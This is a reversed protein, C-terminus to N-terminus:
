GSVALCLETMAACLEEIISTMESYPPIFGTTGFEICFPYIIDKKPDLFHRSFAYDDSAGTTPYLGVSQQVTYKTGRVKTFAISMRDALDKLMAQTDNPIYEKYASDGINGRVNNFDPNRFNQNPDTSQIEDDGWPYLFLGSYSHIDVFYGIQPYTDLIYLVNKTEPESFPATGKYVSSSPDSSTGIGSNWLFDFNRNIDVPGNPNRNKRWWTDVTQSYEKGDPNVDPFVFIDISELIKKVDESSFTKGGYELGQGSNYANLIKFLFAICTDAGGWERAHISGTFLVGPRSEKSGARVRVAHSTKATHTKNPLTILIVNKPFQNALNALATEIESVNLYTTAGREMFERAGERVAFRDAKSVELARQAGVRSLDAKIEIKYGKAEVQHIQEQTMIAPVTFTNEDVKKAARRKLDLDLQDLARLDKLSGAEIVVSFIEM